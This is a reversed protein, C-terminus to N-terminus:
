LANESITVQASMNCIARKIKMLGNFIASRSLWKVNVIFIHFQNVCFMEKV